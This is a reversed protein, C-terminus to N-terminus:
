PSGLLDHHPTHIHEAWSAFTEINLDCGAHVCPRPSSSSSSAFLLQLNHHCAYYPCHFQRQLVNDQKKPSLSPLHDVHAVADRCQSAVNSHVGHHRHLGAQNAHVTNRHQNDTHRTHENLVLSRTKDVLVHSQDFADQQPTQMALSRQLHAGIQNLRRAAATRALDVTNDQTSESPLEHNSASEDADIIVADASQVLAKSALDTETLSSDYSAEPPADIDQLTALCANYEAQLDALEQFTQFDEEAAKCLDENAVNRFKSGRIDVSARSQASGRPVYELSSSAQASAGQHKSGGPTKLEFTTGNLTASALDKASRVVRHPLTTQPQMIMNSLASPSDISESRQGVCSLSRDQHLSITNKDHRFIKRM